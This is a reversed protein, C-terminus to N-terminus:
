PHGVLLKKEIKWWATEMLFRLKDASSEASDFSIDIECIDEGGYAWYAYVRFESIHTDLYCLIRFREVDARDGQIIFKVSGSTLRKEEVEHVHYDPLTLTCRRRIREAWIELRAAPDDFVSAV